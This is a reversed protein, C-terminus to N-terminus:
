FEKKLYSILEKMKSLSLLEIPNTATGGTSLFYLNELRRMFCYPGLHSKTLYGLLGPELAVGLYKDLTPNRLDCDIALVKRGPDMSFAFALNSSVLSKGEQSESSSVAIVKIPQESHTQ